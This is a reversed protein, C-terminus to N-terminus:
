KNQRKLFYNQKGVLPPEGLVGGVGGGGGGGGAVPRSILSPMQRFHKKERM